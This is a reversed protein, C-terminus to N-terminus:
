LLKLGNTNADHKADALKSYACHVLIDQENLIEPDALGSNLDFQSYTINERQNAPISRVLALVPYGARSLYEVLFSGIFGNAGTIVIRPKTNSLM